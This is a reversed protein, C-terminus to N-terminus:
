QFTIDVFHPCHDSTVSSLRDSCVAYEDVKVTNKAGGLMIHDIASTPASTTAAPMNYIGYNEDYNFGGHHCSVQASKTALDRMNTLGGALLTAYPTNSFSTNYDGGCIIPIDTGGLAHNQM